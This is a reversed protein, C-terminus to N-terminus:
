SRKEHPEIVSVRKSVLYLLQKILLRLHHKKTLSSVAEVMTEGGNKLKWLEEMAITTFEEDEHCQAILHTFATVLPPGSCDAFRKSNYSSTAIQKKQVELKKKQQEQGALQCNLSMMWVERMLEFLDDSDITALLWIHHMANAKEKDMDVGIHQFCEAKKEKYGKDKSNPKYFRGLNIHALRLKM